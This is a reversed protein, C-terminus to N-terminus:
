LLKKLIRNNCKVIGIGISVSCMITMFFVKTESFSYLDLVTSFMIHSFYVFSAIHCMYNGKITDVVKPHKLACIFVLVVVPYTMICLTTSTKLDLVQLLVVEILYFIFLCGLLVEAKKYLIGEVLKNQQLTYGTMFFPVVLFLWQTQM